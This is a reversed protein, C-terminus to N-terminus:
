RWRRSLAAVGAVLLWLSGPVPVSGGPQEPGPPAPPLPPEIANPAAIWNSINHILTDNGIDGSVDDLALQMYSNKMWNGNLVLLVNQLPGWVSFMGGPLLDVRPGGSALTAGSQTWLGVLGDSLGPFAGPTVTQYCNGICDAGLVGGGLASLLSNNWISWLNSSAGTLVVKRGSAIYAQLNSTETASLAKGSGGTDVDGSTVWLADSAALAGADSLVGNM